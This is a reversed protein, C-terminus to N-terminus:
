AAIRGAMPAPQAAQRVAPWIAGYDTLFNWIVPQEEEIRAMVADIGNFCPQRLGHHDVLPGIPRFHIATAQLLRLLPPEMIACWHTLKLETSLRLIGKMLALRMMPVPLSTRREKSIAFRSIEATSRLPVYPLLSSCVHQMPFSDQPKEPSSLVLRVTGVVEGSSNVRLLAHHSRVDFEDTELGAEDAFYGRERCYVQNRLRYAEFARESTNAIEITFEDRIMEVAPVISSIFM